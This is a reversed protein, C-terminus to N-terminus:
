PRPRCDLGHQCEIGCVPPLICVESGELLAAGGHLDPNVALIAETSTFFKDALLALYDGERVEYLVGTNVVAGAQIHDPDRLTPNTTYLHLWDSNFAAAISALSEGAQACYQCKQVKVSLCAVKGTELEPHRAQAGVEREAEGAGRRREAGRREADSM